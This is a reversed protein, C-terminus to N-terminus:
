VLKNLFSIFFTQHFPIKMPWIRLFKLGALRKGRLKKWLAKEAETMNKRLERRKEKTEECNFIEMFQKLSGGGAGEKIFLPSHPTCVPLM